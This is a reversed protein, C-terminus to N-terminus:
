VQASRGKRLQWHRGMTHYPSRQPLLGLLLKTQARRVTSQTAPMGYVEGPPLM